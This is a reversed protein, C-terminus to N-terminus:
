SNEVSWQIVWGIISCVVLMVSLGVAIEWSGPWNTYIIWAIWGLGVFLGTLCSGIVISVITRAILKKM